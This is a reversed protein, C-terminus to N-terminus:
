SERLANMIVKVVENLPVEIQTWTSLDKVSAVGKSLEKKGIVIVHRFGAKSAYEFFKSVRKPNEVFELQAVVGISRLSSAVETCVKLEEISGIAIVLIKPKVRLKFSDELALITREVGIAFGTMKLPPGGYVCTLNDYRGGGAISLGLNPVEVEFIPGTYYAIGRAFALDIYFDKIGLSVLQSCLEKLVEIESSVFDKLEVYLTDLVKGADSPLVKRYENLLELAKAVRPNRDMLMQKAQEVLGKDLLHLLLDEERGQLGAQVALRKVLGINNIKFEYNKLGIRKYFDKLLLLLEVDYHIGEAGLIEVGAQTFERYRGRQPEDYRFVQGIYYLRIPKPLAKLMRLYVRVVSPTFEPRLAVERGGKDVFVYMTKRIEEGSKLAFLEFREITPTFIRRYGYEKAVEKFVDLVFEMMESEPPVVDRMGRLPELPISM